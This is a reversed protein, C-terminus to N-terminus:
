PLGGTTRIITSTSYNVLLGHRALFDSSLTCNPYIPGFGFPFPNALFKATVDCLCYQMLFFLALFLEIM